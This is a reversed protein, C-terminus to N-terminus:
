VTLANTIRTRRNVIKNINKIISRYLETAENLENESLADNSFSAKEVADIYREADTNAVGITMILYNRMRNHYINNESAFGAKKLLKTLAMYQYVIRKNDKKHYLRYKRRVFFFVMLAAFGFIAFLVAGLAYPAAARFQRSVNDVPSNNSEESGFFDRFREWFSGSEVSEAMDAVTFEVPVWGFGDYYVEVWAHADAGRAHLKMLSPEEDGEVTGNYGQYWENVDVNDITEVETADNFQIFYGEVYRAPIGKARLLMAAATAFHACFGSKQENLFYTVFDRKNPTVGPSLTYNFDREFYDQIQLIVDEREIGPINTDCIKNLDDRIKSPVYLYNEYVFDRYLKEIFNEPLEIEKNDLQERINAMPYYTHKLEMNRTRIDYLMYDGYDALSNLNVQADDSYDVASFYPTYRYSDHSDINIVTMVAKASYSNQATDYLKSMANSELNVVLESDRLSYYRTLLRKKDAIRRWRNDEYYDGIYGRLYIGEVNDPVMKIELQPEFTLVVERIGGLQGENLGGNASYQNFFGMLGNLAFERVIRDTGKKWTSYNSKMYKPAFGVLLGGILVVSVLFLVSFSTLNTVAKRFRRSDHYVSEGKVRLDPAIGRYPMYFRGSKRLLCVGLFGLLMMGLYFYNIKDDFYACIQVVPYLLLFTLLPSMYGSIASNYFCVSLCSILLMCCTVTIRRDKIMENYERVGNLNLKDDIIKLAANLVANMGSNAYWYLFYAMLCIMVFFLIYGVNFVIRNYYFMGAAVSIFLIFLFLVIKMSPLDFSTLFLGASGFACLFILIGKVLCILAREKSTLRTYEFEMSVGYKAGYIASFEHIQKEKKKFISM